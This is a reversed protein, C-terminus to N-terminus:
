RLDFVRAELRFGKLVEVLNLLSIVASSSFRGGFLLRITCGIIEFVLDEVCFVQGLHVLSVIVEEKAVFEDFLGFLPVVLDGVCSAPSAPCAAAATLSACPTPFLFSLSAKAPHHSLSSTVRRRNDSCTSMSLHSARVTEVLRNGLMGSRLGVRSAVREDLFHVM